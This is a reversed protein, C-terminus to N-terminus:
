VPAEILQGVGCLYNTPGLLGKRLDFGQLIVCRQCPFQCQVKAAHVIPNIQLDRPCLKALNEFLIHLSFGM